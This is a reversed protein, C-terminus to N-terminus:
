RRVARTRAYLHARALSVAALLVLAGVIIHVWGWGTYNLQVAVHAKAAYFEDGRVLAVAGALIQFVGVLGLMWAAFIVWGTWGTRTPGSAAPPSYNSTSM